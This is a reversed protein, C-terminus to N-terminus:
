APLLGHPPVQTRTDPAQLWAAFGQVIGLRRAHTARQVGVSQAAWRVAVNTTVFDAGQAEVFEVFRRLSSKPWGLQTGLARRTALYESLADHLTSM